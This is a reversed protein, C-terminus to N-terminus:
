LSPWAQQEAGRTHRHRGVASVGRLVDAAACRHMRGSTAPPSVAWCSSHICALVQQVSSQLLLHGLHLGAEQSPRTGHM